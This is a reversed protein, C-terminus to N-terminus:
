RVRRVSLACSISSRLGSVPGLLLVDDAERQFRFVGGAERAQATVKITVNLLDGVMVIEVDVVPAAAELNFPRDTAERILGVQRRIEDPSLMACPLSGLGGAQSVEVAMRYDQAGAMPAQIIPLEINLAKTLRESPWM